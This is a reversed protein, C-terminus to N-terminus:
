LQNSRYEAHTVRRCHDAYSARPFGRARPDFAPRPMPRLEPEVGIVKVSAQQAQDCHRHWQDHRRRGGCWCPRSKPCSRSIELGMSGRVPSSRSTTTLLIIVYRAACGIRGSENASGAARVSPSCDGSWRRRLELSSPLRMPTADRDGSGKLARAAYAVGQAHHWQLVCNRGGESKRQCPLLRNYAGRLKFAGIPQLEGAELVVPAHRGAGADV